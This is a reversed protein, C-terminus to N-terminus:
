FQDQAPENIGYEVKYFHQLAKNLEDRLGQYSDHIENVQKIPEGCAELLFRLRLYAFSCADSIVRTAHGKTVAAQREPERMVRDWVLGIGDADKHLLHSSMSYGHALWVVKQMREEKSSAFERCIGTFSWKEELERREARSYKERIAEIDSVNMILDRFPQLEPSNQNSSAELIKKANESHRIASFEPIINWYEDVKREIEEKNGHLMYAFKLSGELVTRCIIDADWEKGARILLLSSETSLHCDIFLQAAVFRVLSPLGQYDQDILPKAADFCDGIYHSAAATWALLAESM